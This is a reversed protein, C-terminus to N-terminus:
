FYLVIIGFWFIYFKFILVIFQNIDGTKIFLNTGQKESLSDSYTNIFNQTGTYTVTM